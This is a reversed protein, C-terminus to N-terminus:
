RRYMQIAELYKALAYIDSKKALDDGKTGRFVRGWVPMERTGHASVAQEGDIWTIVQYIPFKEGKKQLVTLDAPQKKLEAAVPGNGKAGVGHCAVCNKYFLKRGKEIAATDPSALSAESPPVWCFGLGVLFILAGISLTNRMM